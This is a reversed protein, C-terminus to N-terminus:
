VPVFCWWWLNIMNESTYFDRSYFQSLIKFALKLTFSKHLFPHFYRQYIIMNRSLYSISKSFSCRCSKKQLLLFSFLQKSRLSSHPNIMFTLCRSPAKKPKNAGTIKKHFGNHSLALVSCTGREGLM